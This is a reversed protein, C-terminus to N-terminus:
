DFDNKEKGNKEGQKTENQLQLAITDCRNRNTLIGGKWFNNRFARTKLTQTYL